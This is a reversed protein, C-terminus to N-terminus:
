IAPDRDRVSGARVFQRLSSGRSRNDVNPAARGEAHDRLHVSRFDLSFRTRGTAQPHTRHLHQGSFLLLDGARCAVPIVRGQPTEELQPYRATTGTSADQWGIRKKQDVRVWEDFEFIESDNRVARAFEDPFFVFTEEACVDHLPIWWTIMAQPNSYWTDRHGYYIPAAAPLRHGEHAVVRLRIPDFAQEEAVFGHHELIRAVSEHFRSSTYIRKRLRGIRAFYEEDSLQFQATRPDPLDRMEQEIEAWVEAVLQRTADNAALLYLDGSYLSDRAARNDDPLRDRYANM